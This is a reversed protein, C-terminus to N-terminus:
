KTSLEAPMIASQWVKFDRFSGDPMPLEIVPANQPQDSLSFLLDKFYGTNLSYVLYQSPHIRADAKSPVHAPDLKTWAGNYASATFPLVFIAFAFLSNILKRM